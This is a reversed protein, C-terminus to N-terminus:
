NGGEKKTKVERREEVERRKEEKGGGGEEEGRGERRRGEEKGGGRRWRGGGGGGEGGWSVQLASGERLVLLSGDMSHSRHRQTQRVRREHYSLSSLERSRTGLKRVIM